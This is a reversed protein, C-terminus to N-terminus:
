GRGPAMGRGFSILLLARNQKAVRDLAAGPATHGEYTQPGTAVLFGFRRPTHLLADRELRQVVQFYRGM